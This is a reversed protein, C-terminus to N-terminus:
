PTPSGGGVPTIPTTRNLVLMADAAQRLAFRSPWFELHYGQQEVDYLPEAVADTSPGLPAAFNDTPRAAALVEFVRTAPRGSAQRADTLVTYVDYGSEVLYGAFWHEVRDHARGIRVEAGGSKLGHYGGMFVLVRWEPHRALVKRFADAMWVDRNAFAGTAMRETLPTMPWGRVDAAVVHVPHDPHSRNWRYVARYIALYEESAGWHARLTRPHELLLTTDEPTSALYRDITEQQDSGVELALLDIAAGTEQDELLRVLIRKPEALPHVDGLFVIRHRALASRLFEVPPQAQAPLRAAAPGLGLGAASALLAFRRRIRSM